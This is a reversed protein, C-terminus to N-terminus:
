IAMDTVQRGLITGDAGVGIELHVPLHVALGGLAQGVNGGGELGVVTQNEGGVGVALPLGNGPMDHFNQPFLPGELALRHLADDEVGDGFGRHQLGHLVGAVHVHGQDIGIEGAAGEVIEDAEGERGDQPALQRARAGRAPHLRHRQAQDAVALELDLGEARLFVPGDVAGEHRRLALLELRGEVGNSALLEVLEVDLVLGRRPGDLLRDPALGELDVRNFRLGGLAM